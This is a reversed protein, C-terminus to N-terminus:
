NKDSNAGEKIRGEGVEKFAKLAAEKQAQAVIPFTSLIYAFEAETLGYIHAIIGDLEARLPNREHEQTAVKAESWASGMVEEWL